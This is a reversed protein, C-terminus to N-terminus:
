GQLFPSFPVKFAVPEWLSGDERALDSQCGKDGGRERCGGGRTKEPGERRHVRGEKGEKLRLAEADLSFM